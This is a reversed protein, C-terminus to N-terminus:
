APSVFSNPASIPWAIFAKRPWPLGAATRAASCARRSASYGNRLLGRAAAVLRGGDYGGAVCRRLAVPQAARAGRRRSQHRRHQRGGTDQGAGDHQCHGGVGDALGAGAVREAGDVARQGAAPRRLGRQFQHQQRDHLLGARRDAHRRRRVLGARGRPEAVRGPYADHRREADRDGHGGDRPHRHGPAHGKSARGGGGARAAAAGWGAARQSFLWYALLTSYLLVSGTHVLLPIGVGPAPTAPTVWGLTTELQPIHISPRLQGLFAKVPQVGILGVALVILIVYPAIALRLPPGTAQGSAVSGVGRWRRWRTVWLGTLLGALGACASAINWLGAVAVLYQVVAMVLGIVLVAPLARWLGRLGGAAHAALAGCGPAALGLLIATPPALLASPQGTVGILAIFSSGLSGFTVAWAHGIFPVIVATLPSLGLGVLLPATVAIPVGFGGVGQLFSAFVWGTLLVRLVRDGTLGGFGAAIVNLAGAAHVVQYLALAAWVIFVVDITLVLARLHAYLLLEGGAGFRLVAILLAVLWGAPGAKAGGMRLGTMLVLVTLPPAAALAVNLPDTPM